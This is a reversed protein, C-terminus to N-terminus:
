RTVGGVASPDPSGRVSCVGASACRLDLSRPWTTMREGGYEPRSSHGCRCVSVLDIFLRSVRMSCPPRAGGGCFGEDRSEVLVRGRAEPFRSRDTIVM